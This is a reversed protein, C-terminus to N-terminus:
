MFETGKDMTKCVTFHFGLTNCHHMEFKNDLPNRRTNYENVLTRTNLVETQQSSSAENTRRCKAATARTRVPSPENPAENGRLVRVQLLHTYDLAFGM